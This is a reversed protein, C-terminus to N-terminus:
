PTQKAPEKKATETVFWAHEPRALIADIAANARDGQEKKGQELIERLLRTRKIFDNHHIVTRGITGHFECLLTARADDCQILVHSEGGGDVAPNLRSVGIPDRNDIIVHGECGVPQVSQERVSRRM